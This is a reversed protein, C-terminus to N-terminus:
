KSDVVKLNHNDFVTNAPELHERASEIVVYLYIPQAANEDEILFHLRKNICRLYIIFSLFWVSFYEYICLNVNDEGETNVNPKQQCWVVTPSVMMFYSFFFVVVFFFSSCEIHTLLLAYFRLYSRTSIWRRCFIIHKSQLVIGKNRYYDSM